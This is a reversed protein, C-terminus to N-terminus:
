KTLLVKISTLAACINFQVLEPKPSAQTCEKATTIKFQRAIENKKKKDQFINTKQILAFVPGFIPKLVLHKTANTKFNM